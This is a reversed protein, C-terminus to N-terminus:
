RSGSKAVKKKARTSKATRTKKASRLPEEAPRVPAASAVRSLIWANYKRIGKPIGWFLIFALILITLVGKLPLAILWISKKVTHGTGYNLTLEARYPGFMFGDPSIAPNFTRESQPLINAGFENIKAEGRVGGWLNKIVISGAPALYSNGNNRFVINFTIPLTTIWRDAGFMALEGSERIDGSVTLYVLIGARTVISVQKNDGPPSTSWWVVAFHGGPPANKPVEIRFPIQKSEGPALTVFSEVKFWTSLDSNEKSFQKQGDVETFKEFSPYFTRKASENNQLFMEGKIEAGPDVSYELKVPGVTIARTLVPLLLFGLVLPLLFYKKM